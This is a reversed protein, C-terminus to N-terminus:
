DQWIKYPSNQNINQRNIIFSSLPFRIVIARFKTNWRRSIYVFFAEVILFADQFHHVGELIDVRDNAGSEKPNWICSFSKIASKSILLEIYVNLKYSYRTCVSKAAWCSSKAKNSRGARSFFIKKLNCLQPGNKLKWHDNYKYIYM